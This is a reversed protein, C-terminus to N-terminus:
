RFQVKSKRKCIVRYDLMYPAFNLKTESDEIFLNAINAKALVIFLVIIIILVFWDICTYGKNLNENIEIVENDDRQLVATYVFVLLITLIYSMSFDFVLSYLIFVILGIFISSNRNKNEVNNRFNKITNKCLLIIFILFVIVGVIGYSILLEFFYSHTEKVTYPYEEYALSLRKWANGGHGIIPSDKAIRLCNEYFQLRQHISVDELNFSTIIRSILKPIYKYAFIYEEDNIYCKKIIIKKDEKQEDENTANLKIYYIDNSTTFNLEVMQDGNKLKQEAIITEKLYKNVEEVNIFSKPENNESQVDLELKITYERNPEFKKRIRMMEDFGLECPKSYNIAIGIYLSILLIGLIITILIVKIIKKNNKIKKYLKVAFYIILSLIYIILVLRSLSIYIVYLYIIIFLVYITKVLKSKTNEIGNIALFTCFALYISVANAYGFTSEFRYYEKYSLDLNDLLWKFNNDNLKDFGFVIIVISSLVTTAILINVEKRTKVTNRVLLYIIFVFFYKIIFEVTGQYSCYTKFILPLVMTGLFILLVIDLKSNIIKDKYKIKKILLVILSLGTLIGIPLIPLAKDNGGVIVSFTVITICLLLMGLKDINKKDNQMCNQM